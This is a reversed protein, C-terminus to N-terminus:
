YQERKEKLLEPQGSKKKGIPDVYKRKNSTWTAKFGLLNRIVFGVLAL